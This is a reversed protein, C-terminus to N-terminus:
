KNKGDDKEKRDFKNCTKAATNCIIQRNKSPECCTGWPATEQPFVSYSCKNCWITKNKFMNVGRISSIAWRLPGQIKICQIIYNKLLIKVQM